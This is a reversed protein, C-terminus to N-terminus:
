PAGTRDPARPLSTVIIASRQDGGPLPNLALVGAARGPMLDHAAWAL